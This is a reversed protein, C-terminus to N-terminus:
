FHGHRELPITRVKMGKGARIQLLHHTLDVDELTLASLKSIRVGTQLMVTLLCFDRVHLPISPLTTFLVATIEVLSPHSFDARGGASTQRADARCCVCGLPM